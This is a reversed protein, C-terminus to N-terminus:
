EELMGAAERAIRATDEFESLILCDEINDLLIKTRRSAPKGKLENLLNNMTRIDYAECADSLALLRERLFIPDDVSEPTNDSNDQSFKQIIERVYDLFPPTLKRITYDDENQGAEELAAAKRSLETCGVNFLASKMAHTKIIYMKYAASDMKERLLLSELISVSKKADILFSHKLRDMVATNADEQMPYRTKAAEIVELAQRDHIFRMLHMDLKAPDIPKSIFGSFGNDMFMQAAGVTANATLAVIPHDYGQDRLIKTAEVGDMEPMMHDMFIIDYLQGNKIRAIAEAGSEVTEVALKYPLLLGKIVYLNTELDDVVLVRGYPMPKRKQLTMTNLNMQVPKLSRLSEATDKGLIENKERGQPIRVTFVSGKGPESQAKISGGMILLLSHTISMGLGSGEISGKSPMNFRIFEDFLTDLQDKTMGQGTDTVEILLTMEGAAAGADASLTLTVGGQHTYKFANSLLNNLIQKIRLEDGILFLPLNEDVDLTFNLNKNKTYMLNLQISDAIMSSTKYEASAIEIKGAEVKSLDLIDNIIGLLHKSSHYIRLFAEETDPSFCGKQLQIETIGMVANMPTRIEHSIKALFNNKTRTKEEFIELRQKEIKKIERLDSVYAVFIITDDHKIHVFTIETPLDEGSATYHAWELRVYGEAAAKEYAWNVKDRTDTGCPQQPPFRDYFHENFARILQEKNKYEFLRVAEMNCDIMTRESNYLTVSMPASDLILQIRKNIREQEKKQREIEEIEKLRQIKRKQNIIKMQNQVRMKVVPPRFPKNIYDAAGLAFGKVENESDALATVFIVPIDKTESDEKLIKAAEFGDIEPMIIDLLILDPKLRKITDLCNRSDREAFVTYDQNLIGILVRIVMPDNEVILISNKKEDM